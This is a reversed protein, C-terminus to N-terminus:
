RTPLYDPVPLSNLSDSSMREGLVNAFYQLIAALELVAPKERLRLWHRVILATHVLRFYVMLLREKRSYPQSLNQTNKLLYTLARFDCKIISRLRAYDTATHLGDFAERLLPFELGSAAVINQFYEQDFTGRLIKQITVQWYFFFMAVSLILILSAMVM